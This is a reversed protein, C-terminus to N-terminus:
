KERHCYVQYKDMKAFVTGFNCALKMGTLNWATLKHYAM